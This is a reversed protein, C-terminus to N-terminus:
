YPQKLLVRLYSLDDEKDPNMEIALAIRFM